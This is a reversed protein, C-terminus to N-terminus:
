LGVEKWIQLKKQNEVLEEEKEVSLSASPTKPLKLVTFTEKLQCGEIKCDLHVLLKIKQIETWNLNAVLKGIDSLNDIENESRDNLTRQILALYLTNIMIEADRTPMSSDLLMIHDDTGTQPVATGAMRVMMKAVEEEQITAISCCSCKSSETSNLCKGELCLWEKALLSAGQNFIDSLVLYLDLGDCLKESQAVKEAFDKEVKGEYTLLLANDWM